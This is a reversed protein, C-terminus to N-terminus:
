FAILDTQNDKLEATTKSMTHIMLVKDISIASYANWNKFTTLGKKTM